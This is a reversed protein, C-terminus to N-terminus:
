SATIPNTALQYERWVAIKGAEDLQDYYLQWAAAMYAHGQASKYLGRVFQQHPSYAEVVDQSFLSDAMLVYAAGIGFFIAFNILAKIYPILESERTFGYEVFPLGVADMVLSSGVIVSIGAVCLLLFFWSKERNVPTHLLQVM